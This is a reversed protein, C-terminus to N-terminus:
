SSLAPTAAAEEDQEADQADRSRGAKVIPTPPRTQRDRNPTPYGYTDAFQAMSENLEAILRDIRGAFFYYFATVVIAVALGAFTCTMAEYIGKSLQDVRGVGAVAAVQFAKIMGSITGILGLLTAVSGLAYLMRMNRRLRMVENAGADEMAKEAATWGHPLRRIGAAAIRAIPTNQATCYNLAEQKDESSDRFVARLGPIFTAPAVHARRLALFRDLIITVAIVSCLALPYMFIGGKLFLQVVSPHADTAAPPVDAALCPLSGLAFLLACLTKSKQSM